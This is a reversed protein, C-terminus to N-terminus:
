IKSLENTITTEHKFTEKSKQDKFIFVEISKYENADWTIKLQTNIVNHDSEKYDTGEKTKKNKTLVNVRADDIEIKEIHEILDKSVIVFDIIGSNQDWEHDSM